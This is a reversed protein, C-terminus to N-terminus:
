NRQEGLEVLVVALRRRVLDVDRGGHTGVVPPHHPLVLLLAVGSFQLASRTTVPEGRDKREVSQRRADVHNVDFRPRRQIPRLPAGSAVHLDANASATATSVNCWGATTFEGCLEVPSEVGAAEASAYRPQHAVPMM